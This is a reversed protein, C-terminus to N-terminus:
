GATERNPAVLQHNLKTILALDLRATVILEIAGGGLPAFDLKEGAM